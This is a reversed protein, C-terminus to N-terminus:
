PVADMTAYLLGLRNKGFASESIRNFIKINSQATNDVDSKIRFFASITIDPDTANGQCCKRTIVLRIPTAEVACFAFHCCLGEVMRYISTALGVTDVAINDFIITDGTSDGPFLYPVMITLLTDSNM